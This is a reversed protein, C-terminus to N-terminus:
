PCTRRLDVSIIQQRITVRVNFIRQKVFLQHIKININNAAVKVNTKNKRTTLQSIFCCLCDDHPTKRFDSWFDIVFERFTTFTSKFNLCFSQFIFTFSKISEETPLVISIM